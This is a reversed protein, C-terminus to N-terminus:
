EESSPMRELKFNLSLAENKEGKNFKVVRSEDKFGTMEVKVTSRSNLKGSFAYPTNGVPAGDLYVLAGSPETTIQALRKDKEAPAENAALKFSVQRNKTNDITISRDVTEHDAMEIRVRAAGVPGEFVMPTNGELRENVYVLAGVPDSLIEVKGQEQAVPAAVSARAGEESRLAIFHDWQPVNVAQSAYGPRSLVVYFSERDSALDKFRVTRLKGDKDKVEVSEAEFPTSGVCVKQTTFYESGVRGKICVDAEAPDSKVVLVQRSACGTISSAVAVALVFSSSRM